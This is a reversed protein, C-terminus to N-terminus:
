HEFGVGLAGSLDRFDGRLIGVGDRRVEEVLAKIKPAIVEAGFGFYAYASKSPLSKGFRRMSVAADAYREWGNAAYAEIVVAPKGSQQKLVSQKYDRSQQEFLRTCPFSVVRARIGYKELLLDRTQMAYCMESGVGILTVDFDGGEAETFVYAGKGVGERSSYKPYQTLAQRSLSIITPTETAELAAVFAGAVEESDCPRIYLTNPMARYLAPLAIPQHTPGDEGTGISDHTAIHIQQLGQLAAMRVAPAAYLYFMFFTSTLPVFTGKNFAALGNSIACMAHERIGYHIYRGSYDGDLGCATRLDPSQFDVKNNFAVHCSPTLDATGILFSNVKEGLLNTMFGASKRSPTPDTPLQDKPLICQKWDAPMRGAVRLGFEQALDRHEDKYKQLTAAWEAEHEEGRGAVDAFFEYVDNPISFHEDTSLGFSKKINAVDDVGLAAGHTKANGAKSSGFGITTRINIFTPKDSTRAAMLANVIAPVDSNGDHVDLVNWGTARMKANMDETNAVDATGDCTISNNDYIVCLNNLRWHGALSVAELGVGEQLCADGIMCWTMNNVVECGPKNYMAALNKTAMALGVANAVGQGLPGTTVEVGENEIEPHGPCISDTRSSHYSKLQQLTMSKVGVLHMFLYQWLCAHGNSLVFRDRNFYNCNKPSYRMVYKYLAIGIAAMGMASGPHGGNFQQCLDAIFARFVALVRDHKEPSEVEVSAVTPIGQANATLAKIPLDKVGNEYLELSPAM